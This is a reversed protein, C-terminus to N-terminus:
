TSRNKRPRGSKGSPVPTKRMAAIEDRFRQNGLVYNGNTACRMNAITTHDLPAELLGRYAELRTNPSRGLALYDPPHTLLGGPEGLANARYRSWSYEAPDEVMIAARVANLAIYRHCTRVYTDKQALRSRFRGQWPTDSRRYTRNVYQVYRQGLPQMMTAASDQQQPALLLHVHNTM